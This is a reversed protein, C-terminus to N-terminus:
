RCGLTTLFEPPMQELKSIDFNSIGKMGSTQHSHTAKFFEQNKHLRATFRPDRTPTTM